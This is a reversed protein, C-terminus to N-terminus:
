AVEQRQVWGFPPCWDYSASFNRRKSRSRKLNPQRQMAGGRRPHQPWLFTATRDHHNLKHRKYGHLNM